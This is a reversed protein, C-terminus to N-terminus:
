VAQTLRFGTTQLLVLANAAPSVPRHLSQKQCAALPHFAFHAPLVVGQLLPLRALNLLREALFRLEVVSSCLNVRIILANSSQSQKVWHPLSWFDM